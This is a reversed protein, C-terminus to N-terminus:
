ERTMVETGITLTDASLRYNETYTKNSTIEMDADGKCTIAGTLTSRTLTYTFTGASPDAVYTMYTTAVGNGNTSPVILRGDGGPELIWTLKSNKWTGTISAGGPRSGSESGSSNQPVRFFGNEVTPDRVLTGPSIGGVDVMKGSHPSVAYGPKGIVPNATLDTPSQTASGGNAAASGSAENLIQRQTHLLEAAGASNGNTQAYGAAAGTALAGVLALDEDACSSLLFCFPIVTYRHIHKMM